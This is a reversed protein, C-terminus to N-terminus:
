EHREDEMGEAVDERFTEVKEEDWPPDAPQEAPEAGALRHDEGKLQRVTDEMVREFEDMDAVEVEDTFLVVGWEEPIADELAQGLEGLQGTSVDGAVKIFVVQESEAM